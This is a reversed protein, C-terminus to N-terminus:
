NGEWVMSLATFSDGQSTITWSYYTPCTVVGVWGMTSTKRQAYNTTEYNFAIDGGHGDAENCSIPDCELQAIGKWTQRRYWKYKAIFNAGGDIREPGGEIAQWIINNANGGTPTSAVVGLANVSGDTQLNIADIFQQVRNTTFGGSMTSNNFKYQWCVPNDENEFVYSIIIGGQYPSGDTAPGEATATVYSIGGPYAGSIASGVLAPNFTLKIGDFIDSSDETFVNEYYPNASSFKTKSGGDSCGQLTSEESYPRTTVGCSESFNCRLDEFEIECTIHLECFPNWQSSQFAPEVTGTISLYYGETCDECGSDEAYAVWPATVTVPLPKVIPNTCPTLQEIGETCCGDITYDTLTYVFTGSGAHLIANSDIDHYWMALDDPDITDPFLTKLRTTLPQDGFFGPESGGNVEVFGDEMMIGGEHWEPDQLPTTKGYAGAHWMHAYFIDISNDYILDWPSAVHHMFFPTKMSGKPIGAHPGNDHYAAGTGYGLSEPHPDTTSWGDSAILDVENWGTITLIGIDVENDALFDIPPPVSYEGSGEAWVKFSQCLVNGNLVLPFPFGVFTQVSPFTELCGSNIATVFRTGEGFCGQLVCSSYCSGCPGQHGLMLCKNGSTETSWRNGWHGVWYLPQAYWGHADWINDRTACHHYYENACWPESDYYSNGGVDDSACNRSYNVGLGYFFSLLAEPCCTESKICNGEPPEPCDQTSDPDLPPLINGDCFRHACNLDVSFLTDNPYHEHLLTASIIGTSSWGLEDQWVQPIPLGLVEGLETVTDVPKCNWNENRCCNGDNQYYDIVEAPWCRPTNNQLGCDSMPNQWVLGGDSDGMEWVSGPFREECPPFSGGGGPPVGPCGLNQCSIEECQIFNNRLFDEDWDPTYDLDSVVYIGASNIKQIGKQCDDDDPLLGEYYLRSTECDTCGCFGSGNTVEPDNAPDYVIGAKDSGLQACEDADFDTYINQALVPDISFPKIDFIDVLYKIGKNEFYLFALLSFGSTNTWVSTPPPILPDPFKIWVQPDVDPDAGICCDCKSEDAFPPGTSGTDGTEGTEGTSGLTGTDGRAGRPGTSGTSGTDGRPGASGVPAFKGGIGTEGPYGKPGPRGMFGRPGRPGTSGTDGTEGTPGATTGSSSGGVFDILYQGGHDQAPYYDIHTIVTNGATGATLQTLKVKWYPGGWENDTGEVVGADEVFFDASAIANWAVVMNGATIQNGYLTNHDAEFDAGPGCEIEYYSPSGDTPIIQWKDGGLMNSQTIVIYGEALGDDPGDEGPIGLLGPPGQPGVLEEAPEDDGVNVVSPPMQEEIINFQADSFWSPGKQYRQFPYGWRGQLTSDRERKMKFGEKMSELLLPSLEHAYELSHLISSSM